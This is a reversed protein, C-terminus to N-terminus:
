VDKKGRRSVEFYVKGGIELRPKTGLCFKLTEIVADHVKSKKESKMRTYAMIMQKEPLRRTGKESKVEKMRRRKNLDSEPVIGLYVEWKELQEEPELVVLENIRNTTVQPHDESWAKIITPHLKKLGRLLNNLYGVSMGKCTVLREVVQGTKYRHEEKMRQCGRALEYTTLADRSMNEILNIWAQEREDQTSVIRALIKEHKLRKVARLRRFGALLTYPKKTRKKNPSFVVLVPNLQGNQDIDKSLEEIRSYKERVNFVEDAHIDEVPLLKTTM